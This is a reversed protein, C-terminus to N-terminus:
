KFMKPVMEIAQILINQESETYSILATPFSNLM